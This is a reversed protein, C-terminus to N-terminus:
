CLFKHSLKRYERASTFLFAEAYSEGNLCYRTNYLNLGEVIRRYNNHKLQSTFCELASMKQEFVSGIDVMINPLLPTWVEYACVLCEKQLYAILDIFILNTKLHDAHNEGFWPLYVLDPQRETLIRALTAHTEKQIEPSGEAESLFYLDKIGLLRMATESEKRRIRAGEARDAIDPTGNTGDTLYVVSVTDGDLIHKILTGGCGIVEDDFHPSLVLVRTGRPKVVLMPPFLAARREKRFSPIISRIYKNFSAFPNM